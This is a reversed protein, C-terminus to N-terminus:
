EEQRKSSSCCWTISGAVLAWWDGQKPVAAAPTGKEWTGCVKRETQNKTRESNEKVCQWPKGWTGLTHVTDMRDSVLVQTPYTCGVCQRVDLTATFRAGGLWFHLHLRATPGRRRKWFRREVCGGQCWGSLRRKCNRGRHGRLLARDQMTGPVLSGYKEM